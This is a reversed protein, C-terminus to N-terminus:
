IVKAQRSNCPDSIHVDVEDSPHRAIIGSHLSYERIIRKIRIKAESTIM